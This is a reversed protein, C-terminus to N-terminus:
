MARAVPTQVARVAQPTIQAAPLALHTQHVAQHTVPHAAPHAVLLAIPLKM